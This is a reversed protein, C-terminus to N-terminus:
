IENDDFSYEARLTTHKKVAKDATATASPLTSRNQPSFVSFFTQVQIEFFVTKQEIRTGCAQERVVSCCCVFSRACALTSCVVLGVRSVCWDYSSSCLGLVTVNRDKKGDSFSLM